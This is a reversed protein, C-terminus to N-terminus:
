RLEIIVGAPGIRVTKYEVGSDINVISGFLLLDGSTTVKMPEVGTVSLTTLDLFGELFSSTEKSMELFIDGDAEKKAKGIASLIDIFTKNIRVDQLVQKEASDMIFSSLCIMCEFTPNLMKDAPAYEKGDTCYLEGPHAAGDYEDFALELWCEGTQRLHIEKPTVGMKDYKDKYDPYTCDKKDM